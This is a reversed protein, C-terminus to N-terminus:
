GSTPKCVSYESSNGRIGITIVHSVPDEKLFYTGGSNFTLQSGNAKDWGASASDEVTTQPVGHDDKGDVGGFHHVKLVGGEIWYIDRDFSTGMKYPGCEMGLLRGVLAQAKPSYKGPSTIVASGAGTQAVAGYALIEVALGFSLAKRLM